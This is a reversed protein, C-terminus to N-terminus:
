VVGEPELKRIVVRGRRVGDSHPQFQVCVRCVPGVAQGGENHVALMAAVDTDDEDRPHAM